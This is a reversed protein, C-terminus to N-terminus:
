SARIVSMNNSGQGRKGKAKPLYGLVVEFNFIM